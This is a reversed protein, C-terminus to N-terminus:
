QLELGLFVLYQTRGSDHGFYTESSLFDNHEVSTM